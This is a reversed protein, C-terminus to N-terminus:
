RSLCAANRMLLGQGTKKKTKMSEWYEHLSGMKATADIEKKNDIQPNSLPDATLFELAKNVLDHEIKSSM